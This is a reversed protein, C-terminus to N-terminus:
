VKNEIDSMLVRPNSPGIYIKVVKNNLHMNENKDIKDKPM